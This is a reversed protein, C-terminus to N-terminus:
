AAEISVSSGFALLIFTSLSLWHRHIEPTKYSVQLGTAAAASFYDQSLTCEPSGASGLAILKGRGTVELGPHLDFETTLPQLYGNM